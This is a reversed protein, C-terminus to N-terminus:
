RTAVPGPYGARLGEPQTSRHPFHHGTQHHLRHPRQGSQHVPGSLVPESRLIGEYFGAPRARLRPRRGPQVPHGPVGLVRHDKWIDCCSAGLDASCRGPEASFVCLFHVSCVLGRVTHLRFMRDSSPDDRIMLFKSSTCWKARVYANAVSTTKSNKQASADIETELNGMIAM